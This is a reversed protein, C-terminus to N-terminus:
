VPEASTFNRFKGLTIRKSRFLEVIGRANLESRDPKPKTLSPLSLTSQVSATDMACDWIPWTFCNDRAHRSFGTTELQGNVPATPFLPLSEIALRNAGWMTRTVDKSPNGWRLAYRRDESPDWRLGKREDQYDWSEFLVRELHSTECETVLEKMTGVFHQHGAGSMTRFATDQIQKGDDSAVFESGFSALFDVLRRNNISSHNISRLLIERFFKPSVNLDKAFDFEPTDNRCLIDSLQIVFANQNLAQADCFIKPTWTSSHSVWQLRWIEKDDATGMARLTGLAALFALPNSGDLGTLLLGDDSNAPM